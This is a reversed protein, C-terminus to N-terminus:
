PSLESAATSLNECAVRLLEEETTSLLTEARKIIDPEHARGILRELLKSREIVKLREDNILSWRLTDEEPGQRLVWRAVPELMESDLLTQILPDMSDKIHTRLHDSLAKHHRQELHATFEGLREPAHQAVWIVINVTQLNAKLFPMLDDVDVETNHQLVADLAASRVGENADGLAQKLMSPPLAPHKTALLRIADNQHNTLREAIGAEDLKLLSRAAKKQVVGDNDELANLALEKGAEGLAPLLNAGARRVDLSPHNLLTSVAGPGAVVAWQRYADLAKSVFWADDDDLLPEFADLVSPDDHEFLTRVARRRTRIDRHKLRSMARGIDNAM